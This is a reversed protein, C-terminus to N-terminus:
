AALVDGPAAQFSAEWGAAYPQSYLDPQEVAALTQGLRGIYTGRPQRGAIPTWLRDMFADWLPSIPVDFYDAGFIAIAPHDLLGDGDTDLRPFRRQKWDLFLAGSQALDSGPAVGALGREVVKYLRATITDVDSILQPNRAEVREIDLGRDGRM